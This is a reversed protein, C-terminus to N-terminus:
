ETGGEIRFYSVTIAARTPRKFGRPPVFPEFDAPNDHCWDAIAKSAAALDEDTFSEAPLLLPRDASPDPMQTM